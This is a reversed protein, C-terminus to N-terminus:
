VRVEILPIQGWSFVNFEDIAVALHDTDFRVPVHFQCRATISEGTTAGITSGLTILGTNMNVAYQTGSTGLTIASGNRYVNLSGTMIKTLARDYLSVGSQYRKFLQFTRLTGNTTGIIQVPLVYDNWDKYRFGYARGKRAYFFKRILDLESQTKLGYSVDYEARVRSWDINRREYGNALTMVTTSFKPGGVAGYSIEEPFIDEHFAM